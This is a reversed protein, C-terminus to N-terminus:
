TPIIPGIWLGSLLFSIPLVFLIGVFVAIRRNSAVLYDDLRIVSRKVPQYWFALIALSVITVGIAEALVIQAAAPDRQLMAVVLTDALTTINAGMIYPLAEDRRLYGKAALPILVTLAVSVSLTLTAVLCGLAFMTWPRRLWSARKAATSDSSVQPLVLDLLRFSALIVALGALFLLGGPVVVEIGDVVPGWVVALAAELEATAHLNFGDLLGGRIIAYGIMMGPLYVLATMTLAQIGMGIPENRRPDRRNRFAYIFGTLLVIFSAGLRSGSLMTFTQLKTLTGAGFLSIASAAVPSGSLVFYAGLWGFGLTSIGNAFPFEGQIQPGIASAGAKMIQIALIFLYMAPLFLLLKRVVYWANRPAEFPGWDLLHRVEGVQTPVCFEGDIEVLKEIELDERSKTL